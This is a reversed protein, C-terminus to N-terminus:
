AGPKADTARRRPQGRLARLGVYLTAAAMAALGSGYLASLLTPKGYARMSCGAAGDFCDLYIGHFAMTYAQALIFIGAFFCLAGAARVAGSVAISRIMIEEERRNVTSPM